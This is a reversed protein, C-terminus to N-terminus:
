SSGEAGVRVAVRNSAVFVLANEIINSRGEKDVYTRTSCRFVCTSKGVAAWLALSSNFSLGIITSGHM